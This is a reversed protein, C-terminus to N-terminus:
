PAVAGELGKKLNDFEGNVEIRLAQFIRNNTKGTNAGTVKEITKKLDAVTKYRRIKRYAVISEAIDRAKVNKPIGPLCSM